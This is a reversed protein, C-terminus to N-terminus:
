IGISQMYEIIERDIMNEQKIRKPREHKRVWSNFRKINYVAMTEINDDSHMHCECYPCDLYQRGGYVHTHQCRCVKGSLMSM